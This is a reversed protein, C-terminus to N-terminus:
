YADRPIIGSDANRDLVSILRSAQRETPISNRTSVQNVIGPETPSVLGAKMGDTRVALWIAAQVKMVRGIAEF